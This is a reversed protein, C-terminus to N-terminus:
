INGGHKNWKVLADHIATMELWNNEGIDFWKSAHVLNTRKGLCKVSLLYKFDCHFHSIEMKKPNAPIQHVDIDIPMTHIRHWPQLICVLGTEEEVERLAAQLPLEGTEVHGGPQLWRRLVPHYILLVRPGEIVIGSATIHGPITNRSLPMREHSLWKYIEACKEHEQPFTERYKKLQDLLLDKDDSGIKM